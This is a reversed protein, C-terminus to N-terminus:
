DGFLADVAWCGRVHPGKGRLHDLLAEDACGAEELADALVGLRAGDLTGAPLIHATYAAQALARVEATVSSPVLAIPRFPNGFVERLIAAVGAKRLGTMGAQTAAAYAAHWVDPDASNAAAWPAHVGRPGRVARFAADLVGELAAPPALGDAVWEAIEVARRVAQQDFKDWLRRGLACAFLRLKRDSAKGRLCDLMPYADKSALWEVETV